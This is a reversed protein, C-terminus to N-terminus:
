FLFHFYSVSSNLYINIYKWELLLTLIETCKFNANFPNEWQENPAHNDSLNFGFLLRPKGFKSNILTFVSFAPHAM